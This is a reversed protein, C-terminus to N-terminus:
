TGPPTSAPPGSQDPEARPLALAPLRRAPSLNRAATRAQGAASGAGPAVTRWAPDACAFLLPLACLALWLGARRPRPAHASRTLSAPKM